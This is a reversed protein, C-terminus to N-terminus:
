LDTPADIPKSTKGFASVESWAAISASDFARKMSHSVSRNIPMVDTTVCNELEKRLPLWYHKDRERESTEEDRLAHELESANGSIAEALLPRKAVARRVQQASSRAVEILLASTRLERLWFQIQQANPQERHQFYDAEVLRRIM